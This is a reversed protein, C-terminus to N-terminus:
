KYDEGLNRLEYLQHYLNIKMKMETLFKKFFKVWIGLFFQSINGSLSVKAKMIFQM